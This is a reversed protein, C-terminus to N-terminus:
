SAKRKLVSELKQIFIRIEAPKGITVRIHDTFRYPDMARVIVGEKLLMEYVGRGNGVRVLIFNSDTLVYSLGLRRFEGYLYEKGEINMERSKRIHGSDTLAAIAAVQALSNTNFPQRVRNMVSIIDESAIGYGIRLGALGYIKSFTRMIIVKRGERFFDLSKPFDDRDEYGSYAEDLIVIQDDGIGELFTKLVKKGVSTGTPNDPNAIYVLRTRSTVAEAMAGLDHSYGNLPVTISKGGAARTVSDYIVFSQDAMVAEEGSNLFTRASLEIIENSGNGLIINEPKVGHFSSLAEKLYFGGGDPYRHLNNEHEKIAEIARPSPGLANENSALKVTNRLNFERELEEIPKGPEYPTITKIHESVHIVM